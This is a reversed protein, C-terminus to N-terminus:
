AEPPDLVWSLEPAAGPADAPRERHWGAEVRLKLAVLFSAMILFLVLDSGEHFFSLAVDGNFFLAVVMMIVLRLINAAIVAPGIAALMWLRHYWAVKAFGIVWAGVMFLAFLSNMGSCADAITAQFIPQNAYVLSLVVGDRVVFMGMAGCVGATAIASVKQLPFAFMAYATRPFPVAFILFAIPFFFWKLRTKGRTLAVIAGLAIVASTGGFYYNELGLEGIRLLGALLALAVGGIWWPEPRSAADGSAIFQTRRLQWIWLAAAPVVLCHYWMPNSLASTVIGRAIGGYVWVIVGALVLVAAAGAPSRRAAALAEETADRIAQYLGM